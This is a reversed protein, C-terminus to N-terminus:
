LGVRRLHTKMEEITGADRIVLMEAIRDASFDPAVTQLQEAAWGAEDMRELKSLAVILFVQPTLLNINRDVAERLARVAQDYEGMFFYAQGLISAYAAPYRPNLLMAKRVLPLAEEPKGFHVNCVALTLYSDAFSPDLEVARRAAEAAKHYEQRFLHVYGLVWYAQPLEKDLAVGKGALQLARELQDYPTNGWGYRYEAVYTLAMASYARAFTEDRDIAQQYHHRALRNDARDHHFYLAQGRLFDDYAELSATYRRATRRREEETLKVSLADIIHSTIDDQVDFVDRLERDYRESWLYVDSDADILHVNVRLRDGTRRVSGELIYRVGLSGAVEKIDLPTARYGVASSQSIVFLGSLKSLATTIDATVGDSFYRQSPDDSLNAFPLVVISPPEMTRPQLVTREDTEMLRLVGILVLGLAVIGLAIVWLTHRTLRPAIPDRATGPDTHPEARTDAHHDGGSVQAILRYGKKSVTEIYRPNRPDDGLVKRLKAICRTLADYGVVTNRWIAQELEVRTVLEGQRQALYQLVAMVKSELKVETDGRRLRNSDTEVYWDAVYFRPENGPGSTKAADIM